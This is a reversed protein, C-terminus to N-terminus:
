SFISHKSVGDVQRVCVSLLHLGKASTLSWCFAPGQLPIRQTHTSGAKSDKTQHSKSGFPIVLSRAHWKYTEESVEHQLERNAGAQQKAEWGRAYQM